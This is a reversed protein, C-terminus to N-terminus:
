YDYKEQMDTITIRRTGKDLKLAVEIENGELVDNKKSQLIYKFMMYNDDLTASFIDVVKIEMSYTDKFKDSLTRLVDGKVAIIISQNFDDKIEKLKDKIVM